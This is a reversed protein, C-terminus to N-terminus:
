TFCAKWATSTAATSINLAGGARLGPQGRLFVKATNRATATKRGLAQVGRWGLTAIGNGGM